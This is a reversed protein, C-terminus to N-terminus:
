ALRVTHDTIGDGTPRFRHEWFWWLAIMFATSLLECGSVILWFLEYSLVYYHLEQVFYGVNWVLYIIKILFLPTTYGM